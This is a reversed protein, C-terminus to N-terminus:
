LPEGLRTLTAPEARTRHLGAVGGLHGPARHPDRAGPPAPGPRRTFALEGVVTHDEAFARLTCTAEVDYDALTVVLVATATHDDDISYTELESTVQPRSHAWITWVLWALFVVALLTSGVVILGAGGRRRRATGSPSPTRRREGAVAHCRPQSRAAVLGAPGAGPSRSICTCAWGSSSDLLPAADVAIYTASPTSTCTTVQVPPSRPDIRFGFISRGSIRAFMVSIRRWSISRARSM